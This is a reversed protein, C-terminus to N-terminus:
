GRKSGDQGSVPRPPHVSGTSRKVIVTAVFAGAASAFSSRTAGQTAPTTKM